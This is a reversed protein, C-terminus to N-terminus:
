CPKGLQSLTISIRKVVPIVVLYPKNTPKIAREATQRSPKTTLTGAAQFTFPKSDRTNNQKRTLMESLNVVSM